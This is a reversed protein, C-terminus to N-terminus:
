PVPDIGTLADEELRDIAPWRKGGGEGAGRWGVEAGEVGAGQVEQLGM